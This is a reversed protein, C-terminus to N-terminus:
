LPSCVLRIDKNATKNTLMSFIPRQRHMAAHRAAQVPDTGEFPVEGEFLQFCIMAFSYVDVKTNYPEHLFVEPAMYRYSGTEGAPQLGADLSISQLLWRM